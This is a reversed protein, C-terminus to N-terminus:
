LRREAKLLTLTRDLLEDPIFPKVIYDQAGFKRGMEIDREERRASLIIAPISETASEGRMNKLVTLGDLGPMMRDLIVIDPLKKLIEDWAKRGDDVLIVKFGRHRYKSDLLHLILPDNDAILVTYRASDLIKEVRSILQDPDFPKIIYDIAGSHLASVVDKQETQGTLMLIPITLLAPDQKVRRLVDHGSMGPMSIDLIILDPKQKALATMAAAGDRLVTVYIGKQRLRMSLFDGLHHDDDVVFVHFMERMKEAKAQPSAMPSPENQASGSLCAQRLALMMAEFSAYDEDSLAGDDALAKLTKELFLDISRGAETVAPYGFTTGSGALGHALSQTRALDSKSLKGLQRQGLINDIAEVSNKLRDVFSNRLKQYADEYSPTSGFEIDDSM